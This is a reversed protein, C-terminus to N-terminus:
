SRRRASESVGVPEAVPSRAARAPRRAYSTVYTPREVDDDHDTRLAGHGHRALHQFRERVAQGGRHDVDLM